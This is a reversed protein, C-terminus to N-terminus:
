RQHFREDIVLASAISLSRLPDRVTGVFSVVYNDGKTFLEKALGARTKSIQAVLSGSADQVNFERHWQRDEVYVAGIQEDTAGELKFDRSIKNWSMSPVIRGLKAGSPGSVIVKGTMISVERRLDLLSRGSMDVVQMRSSMRKGRVAAHQRGNQDFIAYEARLEVLKGKQNIVLVPEDFLSLDAHGSSDALGVKQVQKRIKKSARSETPLPSSAPPMTQEALPTSPAPAPTPRVEVPSSATIPQDVSQSGNSSVHETWSMGNWYRLQFRGFPDAHWAGATPSSEASVATANGAPDIGPRGQSAVHETWKVGDWHRHEHRGYPDPYWGAPSANSM